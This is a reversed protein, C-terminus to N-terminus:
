RGSKCVLDMALDDRIFVKRLKTPPLPFPSRALLFGCLKLFVRLNPLGAQM